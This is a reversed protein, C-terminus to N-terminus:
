KAISLSKSITGTILLTSKGLASGSLTLFSISSTIPKGASWAGNTDALVPKFIWSTKSATTLYM